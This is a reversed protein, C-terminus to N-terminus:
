AKNFLKEKGIIHNEDNRRNIHHMYQFMREDRSHIGSSLSSYDKPCATPNLNSINQKFNKCIYEDSIYIQLM